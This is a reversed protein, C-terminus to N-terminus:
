TNQNKNSLIIIVIYKASRTAHCFNVLLVSCLFPSVIINCGSTCSMVLEHYDLLCQSNSILFTGGGGNFKISHYKIELFRFLHLICDCLTQGVSTWTYLRQFM